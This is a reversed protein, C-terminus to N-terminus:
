LRKSTLRSFKFSNRKIRFHAFSSSSHGSLPSYHRHRCYKPHAQPSKSGPADCGGMDRRSTILGYYWHQPTRWSATLTDVCLCETSTSRVKYHPTLSANRGRLICNVHLRDWTRIFAGSLAMGGEGLGLWQALGLNM